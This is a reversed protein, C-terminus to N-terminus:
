SRRVAGSFGAFAWGIALLLAPPGVVVLTPSVWAPMTGSSAVVDFRDFYNAPESFMGGAVGMGLWLLVWAVSAVVWLRLFGRRM